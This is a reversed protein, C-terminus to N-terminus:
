QRNESHRLALLDRMDLLVSLIEGLMFMQGNPAAKGIVDRIRSEIQERTYM